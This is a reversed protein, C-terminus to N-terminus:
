VFYFSFYIRKTVEDINEIDSKFTLIINLLENENKLICIRNVITSSETEQSTFTAFYDNVIIESYKRNTIKAGAKQRLALEEKTMKTNLNNREVEILLASNKINENCDTSYAILDRSHFNEKFEFATPIRMVYDDKQVQIGAGFNFYGKEQTIPLQEKYIKQLEPGMNNYADRISINVSNENGYGGGYMESYGGTTIKIEKEEVPEIPIEKSKDLKSLM